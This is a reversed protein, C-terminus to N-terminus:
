KKFRRKLGVLGMLGTGLLFMTAPEPVPQPALFGRIEGGAFVTTHINLYARGDALSAALAAEAGAPTGGQAAIFAPNWSSPQTLDFTNDYTGSTVGLPFGVFTPTQTAVGATGTFPDATPAHIHSAITTGLLGSFTVDVSLTHAASDYDVTAFGTGPSSNPPSESPGDLYAQYEFLTAHSDRTVGTFCWLAALVVLLKYARRMQGIGGKKGIMEKCGVTRDAGPSRGANGRILGRKPIALSVMM